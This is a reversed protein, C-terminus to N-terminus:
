EKLIVFSLPLCTKKQQKQILNFEEFCFSLVRIKLLKGGGLGVEEREDFVILGPLVIPMGLIVLLFM